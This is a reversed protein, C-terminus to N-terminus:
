GTQKEMPAAPQATDWMPYWRAAVDFPTDALRHLEDKAFARVRARVTDHTLYEVPSKGDLRALLLGGIYRATRNHLGARNFQAGHSEVFATFANHLAHTAHRVVTAKLLLHTLCFAVDFAPDGFVACEADLIVVRDRGVLINKPSFDGHVLATCNDEFVEGLQCLRQAVDPNAAGAAAFYPEIRLSRFLDLNAFQARLSADEASHQHVIGLMAGIRAALGADVDGAILQAKWTPYANVPLYELVLVGLAEHRALVRPTAGPAVQSVFALYAAEYATRIVPARWDAAVKLKELAQKACVPGSPLDIRWINSSVGGSLPEGSVPMRDSALGLAVM